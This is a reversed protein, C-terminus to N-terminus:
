LNPYAGNWVVNRYVSWDTAGETSILLVRSNEDLKLASKLGALEPKQMVLSLLGMTVAGSEGSEVRSDGDQPNGYIRMGRAAVEDPVSVFADACSELISWGIPNPVGCALGCMITDLDGGVTSVEGAKMSQYFCDAKDPEVVAIVPKEPANVSFYGAISSAFAGVGAQLFIHTPWGANEAKMQQVTEGALTSYGQIIWEPVKEYGEWATDQVVAWGNKKADEVLLEVTEDYNVDSVFTHAGYKKINEEREKSIGAPMYVISSYGLMKSVWAVGKGHNGDTATAFVIKGIKGATNEAKLDQLGLEAVDKDLKDAICNGIAYLGGLAKFSNMGFRFSEDKVYIGGLGLLEAFNKLNHLPTLQYAPFKRHFARVKEVAGSNLLDGATKLGRQNKINNAAWKIDVRFAGKSKFYQPIFKGRLLGPFNLVSFACIFQKM